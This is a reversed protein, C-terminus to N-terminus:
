DRWREGRTQNQTVQVETNPVALAALLSIEILAQNAPDYTFYSDVGYKRAICGVKRGNSTAEKLLETAEEPLEPFDKVAVDLFVRINSFCLVNPTTLLTIM